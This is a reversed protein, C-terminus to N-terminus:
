VTRTKATADEYESREVFEWRQNLWEFAYLLVTLVLAYKILGFFAGSIRILLGMAAMKLTKDLLKALLYVAIVIALFTLLFAMLSILSASADLYQSLFGAVINSFKMSGWIGLVLGALSALELILGKRFGM